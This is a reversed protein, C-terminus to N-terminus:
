HSQQTFLLIDKTDLKPSKHKRTGMFSYQALKIVQLYLSIGSM